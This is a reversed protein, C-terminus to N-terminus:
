PLTTGSRSEFSALPVGGAWGSSAACNRFMGGGLASIRAKDPPAPGRHGRVRVRRGCAGNGGGGGPVRTAPSRVALPQEALRPDVDEPEVKREVRQRRPASSYYGPSM